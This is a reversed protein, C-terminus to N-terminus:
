ACSLVRSPHPNTFTGNRGNAPHRRGFLRDGAGYWRSPGANGMVLGSQGVLSACASYAVGCVVLAGGGQARAVLAVSFLFRM